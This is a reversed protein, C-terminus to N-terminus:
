GSDLCATGPRTEPAASSPQLPTPRNQLHIVIERRYPKGPNVPPLGRAVTM